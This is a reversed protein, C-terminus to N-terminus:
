INQGIHAVGGLSARADALTCLVTERSSPDTASDLMAELRNALHGATREASLAEVQMEPFSQHHVSVAHVGCTACCRETLIVRKPDAGKPQGRLKRPVGEQRVM